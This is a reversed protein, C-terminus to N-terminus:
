KLLRTIKMPEFFLLFYIKLVKPKIVMNVEVILAEDSIRSFRAIVDSFISGFMSYCFRPINEVIKIGLMNSFVTFYQGCIINGVEKIAAKDLRTLKRTSGEKRKLLKDSLYFAAERPLVLLATGKVDGSIPLYIGVAMEEPDLIPKLKRINGIKSTPINIKVNTKFLKMMARSASEAAIRNIKQLNQKM